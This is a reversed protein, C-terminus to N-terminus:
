TATATASKSVTVITEVPATANSASNSKTTITTVAKGTAGGNVVATAATNSTASATKSTPTQPIKTPIPESKPVNCMLTFEKYSISGNDDKDAHRYMKKCDAESVYDPLNSMVYKFQDFTLQEKNINYLPAVAGEPYDKSGVLTRFLEQRFAEEPEERFKRMIVKCFAPYYIHGNREVENILDQIESETPNLGLDKMAQQLDKPHITAERLGTEYMKFVETVRDLEDKSLQMNPNAPGQDGSKTEGAM